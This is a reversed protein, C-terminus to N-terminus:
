CGFYDCCLPSFICSRSPGLTFINRNAECSYSHFETSIIPRLFLFTLFICQILSIIQSFERESRLVEMISESSCFLFFPNSDQSKRKRAGTGSYIVLERQAETKKAIFHSNYYYSGQSIIKFILHSLSYLASPM